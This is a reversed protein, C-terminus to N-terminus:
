EGKDENIVSNMEEAVKAEEERLAKLVPNESDGRIHRAADSEHEFVQRDVVYIFGGKPMEIGFIRKGLLDRFTINPKM